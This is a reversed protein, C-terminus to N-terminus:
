PVTPQAQATTRNFLSSAVCSGGDFVFSFPFPWTTKAKVFFLKDMIARRHGVAVACPALIAPVRSHSERRELYSFRVAVRRRAVRRRHADGGRWAVRSPSSSEGTCQTCMSVAISGRFSSLENGTNSVRWVRASFDPIEDGCLGGGSVCVCACHARGCRSCM